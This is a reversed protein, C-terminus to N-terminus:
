AQCQKAGKMMNERAWLPQMNQLAWCKIRQSSDTMDIAAHFRARFSQMLRLSPDHRRREREYVRRKAQRKARSADRKAQVADFDEPKPTIANFFAENDWAWLALTGLDIGFLAALDDDSAGLRVCAVYAQEAFREEYKTPRGGPHVALKKVSVTRKPKKHSRANLAM